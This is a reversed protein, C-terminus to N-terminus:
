TKRLELEITQLRIQGDNIVVEIKFIPLANEPLLISQDNNVINNWITTFFISYQSSHENIWDSPNEGSNLKELIELRLTSDELKSCYLRIDHNIRIGMLISTLVTGIEIKYILLTMCNLLAIKSTNDGAAAIEEKLFSLFKKLDKGYCSHISGPTSQLTDIYDQLPTPKSIDAEGGTAVIIPDDWKEKSLYYHVRPILRLFPYVVGDELSIIPVRQMVLGVLTDIADEIDDHLYLSPETTAKLFDVLECVAHNFMEVLMKRPEICHFTAREDKLIHDSREISESLIHAMRTKLLKM